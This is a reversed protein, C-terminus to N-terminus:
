EEYLPMVQVCIPALWVIVIGLRRYRDLRTWDTWCSELCPWTRCRDIVEAAEEAGTMELTEAVVPDVPSCTTM